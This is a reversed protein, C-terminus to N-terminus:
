DKLSYTITTVVRVKKIHATNEDRNEISFQGQDASIIKNLKSHSNTAFQEATKEANAIAEAMMEPKSDTFSVYEYKIPNDYENAVIAIGQQLLDGQRSMLERVKKVNGSVVTITSTINYRYPVNTNVYRDAKLDVVLPANTSIEDETIGGDLLFKKIAANTANIKAYLSPLDNGVEKTSIPWTVRDAEVERVALGKVTVKRDKDTFNDVAAKLCLGTLVLGLAIIVAEIIRNNKNLKM